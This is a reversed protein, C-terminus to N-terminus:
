RCSGCAHLLRPLGRAEGTCKMRPFPDGRWRTTALYKGALKRCGINDRREVIEERSWRMCALLITFAMTYRISGDNIFIVGVVIRTIDIGM